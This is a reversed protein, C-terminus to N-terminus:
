FKYLVIEKNEKDRGLSIKEPNLDTARAPDFEYTFDYFWVRQDIKKFDRIGELPDRAKLKKLNGVKYDGYIDIVSIDKTREGLYYKAILEEGGGYGGRIVVTDGKEGHERLYEAIKNVGPKTREFYIQNAFSALYLCLFAAFLIKPWIKKDFLMKCIFYLYFPVIFSFYRVARPGIESSVLAALIFPAILCLILPLNKDKSRISHLIGFTLLVLPVLVSFVFITFMLSNSKLFAINKAPSLDLDLFLRGAGFRYLANILGIINAKLNLTQSQEAMRGAFQHYFQGGWVFAFLFVPAVFALWLSKIKERQGILLYIGEGFLVIFGLYQTLILAFTLTCFYFSLYLNRREIIKLFLYFQWFFILTFLAYPRVEAAHYGLTASFISLLAVAFAVKEGTIKKFVLYILWISFIGALASVLRSNFENFPLIKLSLFELFHYLPPHVDNAVAGFLAKLNAAQAIKIVVGEDGDFPRLGLFLLRAMAAVALLVIIEWNERWFKKM